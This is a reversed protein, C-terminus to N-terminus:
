GPGLSLSLGMQGVIRGTEKLENQTLKQSPYLPQVKGQKTKSIYEKDIEANIVAM